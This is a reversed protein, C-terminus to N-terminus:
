IRIGHKLTPIEFSFSKEKYTFELQYCRLAFKESDFFPSAGYLVDGLIPYNEFAFQARIQHTRGTLLQVQVHYLPLPGCHSREFSDLKEFNEIILECLISNARQDPFLIKPARDGKQMFHKLHIKRPAPGDSFTNAQSQILEANFDPLCESNIQKKCVIMSYKKIIKKELFLKNLCSLAKNHKAVLLLGETGIDLRHCLEAEVFGQARVLALINEESNDLTAQVPIGSPKKVVFFDDTEEIISQAFDFNEIDFRRPSWHIRLYDNPQLELDGPDAVAVLKNNGINKKPNQLRVGNLFLAGLSILKELSPLIEGELPDKSGPSVGMQIRKKQIKDFAELLSSKENIRVHEIRGQLRTSFGFNFEGQSEM